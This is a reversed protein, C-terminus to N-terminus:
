NEQKDGNLVSNETSERSDNSRRLWIGCNKPLNTKWSTRKHRFWLKSLKLLQGSSILNCAYPVEPKKVTKYTRPTAEISM